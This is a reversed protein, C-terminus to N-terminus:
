GFRKSLAHSHCTNSSYVVHNIGYCGDMRTLGTFNYSNYYDRIHCHGDFSYDVHITSSCNTHYFIINISDVRIFLLYLCSCSPIKGSPTFYNFSNFFFSHLYISRNRTNISRYSALLPNNWRRVSSSFIVRESFIALLLYVLSQLATLLLSFLVLSHKIRILYLGFYHKNDM